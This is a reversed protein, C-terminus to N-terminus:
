FRKKLSMVQGDRRMEMRNLFSMGLLVIPLDHEHVAADVQNLMIEGVRVSNLTVRWMRTPGNATMATGPQGKLYDVNARAADKAGMAVVTAGTDVLFRVPVGNITGVTFFHGSADATLNVAAAARDDSGASVSHQGVLLRQRRGDIEVQAAGDETGLVKVGEETRTGVAVARPKGGDIVLLAKGAYLGVLSVETASAAAATLLIVALISHRRAAVRIIGMFGMAM